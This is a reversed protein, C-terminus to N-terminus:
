AVHGLDHEMVFARLVAGIALATQGHRGGAPTMTILEGRFLEFHAGDAPEPLRLLEEATIPKSATTM